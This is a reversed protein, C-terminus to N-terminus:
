NDSGTGGTQSGCLLGGFLAICDLYELGSVSIATSDACLIQVASDIYIHTSRPNVANPRATAVILFPGLFLVRNVGDSLFIPNDSDLSPIILIVGISLVIPPFTWFLLGVFLFNFLYLFM